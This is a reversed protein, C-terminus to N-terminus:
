RKDANMRPELLELIKKAFRPTRPPEYEKEEGNRTTDTTGDHNLDGRMGKASTKPSAHRM